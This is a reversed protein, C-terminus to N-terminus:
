ADTHVRRSTRARSARARVRVRVGRWGCVCVSARECLCVCVCLWCDKHSVVAVKEVKGENVSTHLLIAQAHFRLDTDLLLDVLRERWLFHVM